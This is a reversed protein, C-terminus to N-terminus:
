SDLGRGGGGHRCSRNPHAEAAGAALKFGIGGRAVGSVDLLERICCLVITLQVTGDAAMGFFLM